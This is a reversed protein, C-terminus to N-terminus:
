SKAAGNTELTTIRDTNSQAKIAAVDARAKATHATEEAADARARAIQAKADSLDLRRLVKVLGTVAVIVGALAIGLATVLASVGDLTTAAYIASAFMTFVGSAFRIM